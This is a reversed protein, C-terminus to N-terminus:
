TRPMYSAAIVTHVATPWKKLSTMQSCSGSNM